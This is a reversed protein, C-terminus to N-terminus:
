GFTFAFLKIGPSIKLELMHEGAQDNKILKYLRSELIPALGAQVDAGAMTEVPRGDQWVEITGSTETEAVLYVEKANYLYHVVSDEKSQAYEPTINWVGSLYLLNSKLSQPLVLSQDGERGQEGNAFLERLSGFYTEPSRAATKQEVIGSSVLEDGIVTKSSLVTAREKLLEQIKEETEKYDGEGIHDYVINGNIDILYKRPWYKNGLANWTAYDNDLVVPFTIGFEKMAKEVNEKNKEFAFEPTHIGIVILGDDKYKEYWATVYPFTRQCNICSYTMIDLLIVQKGVYDSIKIPADNTNVFGAPKVIEVYPITNERSLIDTATSEVKEKPGEIFIIGVGLGVLILLIVGIIYEIKM